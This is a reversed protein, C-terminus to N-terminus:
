KNPVVGTGTDYAVIDCGIRRVGVLIFGILRDKHFAGISLRSDYSRRHLMEIFETESFQFSVQYDSFADLFVPYLEIEPVSKLSQYVIM